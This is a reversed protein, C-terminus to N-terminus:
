QLLELMRNKLETLEHMSGASGGKDPHCKHALSRYGAVVLERALEKNKVMKFSVLNDMVREFRASKKAEGNRPREPRAERASPRRTSAGNIRKKQLPFEESRQYDEIVAAKMPAFKAMILDLYRGYDKQGAVPFHTRLGEVIKAENLGWVSKQRHWPTRLTDLYDDVIDWYDLVAVQWVKKRRRGEEVYSEQLAIRLQYRTPRLIQQGSFCFDDSGPFIPEWVANRYVGSPIPKHKSKRKTILCYM